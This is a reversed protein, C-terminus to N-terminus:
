RSSFRSLQWRSGGPLRPSTFIPTTFRRKDPPREVRLPVLRWDDPSASLPMQAPNRGHEERRRMQKAIRRLHPLAHRPLDLLLARLANLRHRCASLSVATEDFAMDPTLAEAIRNRDIDFSSDDVMLCAQTILLYRAAAEARSLIEGVFGLTWDSFRRSVPGVALVGLVVVLGAVIRLLRHRQTELTRKIDV